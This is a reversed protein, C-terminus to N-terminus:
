KKSKEDYYDTLIAYINRFRDPYDHTFKFMLNDDKIDKYAYYNIKNDSFEKVAFLKSDFSLFYSTYENTLNDIYRVELSDKNYIKVLFDDEDYNIDVSIIGKDNKWSSNNKTSDSVLNVLNTIADNDYSVSSAMSELVEQNIREINKPDLATNTFRFFEYGIKLMTAILAVNITPLVYKSFINQKKKNNAGIPSYDKNKVM